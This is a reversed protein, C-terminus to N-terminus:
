EALSGEEIQIRDAVGNLATNERAVRVAEADIDLALIPGAGLKAAAVSLIGSGTGLDLVAQGPRLHKEIAALCLQTTPHTGTGFAMGPDIRIPIDEPELPPNLWAPVIMLRRGLRLPHFNVKWAEAWDAEAVTQYKPSPLPLIQGLHWLAEELAARTSELNADAPLYARVNVPGIARGADEATT